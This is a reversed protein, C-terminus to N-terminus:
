PTGRHHGMPVSSLAASLQPAVARLRDKPRPETRWFGKHNLSMGRGHMEVPTLCRRGLPGGIRHRDFPKISNFLQGCGRCVCRNGTLRPATM